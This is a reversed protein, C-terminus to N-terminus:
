SNNFVSNYFRVYQSAITEIGFTNQGTISIAKRDLNKMENLLIDDISDLSMLIKGCKNLKIYNTILDVSDNTLVPLGCSVYESFKVPSAVENTVGKNRFIIAADAACLYKFM